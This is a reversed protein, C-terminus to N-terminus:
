NVNIMDELYSKLQKNLISINIIPRQDIELDITIIFVM